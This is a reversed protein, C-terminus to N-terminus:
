ETLFSMKAKELSKRDRHTRTSSFLEDVQEIFEDDDQWALVSIIVLTDNSAVMGQHVHLYDDKNPTKNLLNKDTVSFYFGSSNNDKIIRPKFNKKVSDTSLKAYVNKMGKKLASDSDGDRLKFASILVKFKKKDYPFLSMELRYGGSSMKKIESSEHWDEPVNMTLFFGMERAPFVKTVKKDTDLGSISIKENKSYLLKSNIFQYSENSGPSNLKGKKSIVKNVFDLYGLLNKDKSQAGLSLYKKAKAKKGLSALLVGYDVQAKHNLPNLKLADQLAKKSIDTNGDLWAYYGINTLSSEILGKKTIEKMLLLRQAANYASDWERARVYANILNNWGSPSNQGKAFEISTKCARISRQLHNTKRLAACYELWVDPVDYREKLTLLYFKLSEVVEGSKQLRYAEDFFITFKDLSEKKKSDPSVPSQTEAVSCPVNSFTARGKEDICKHVGYASPILLVSSIIVFLRSLIM